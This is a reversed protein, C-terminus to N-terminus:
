APKVIDVPQGWNAFKYNWNMGSETSAANPDAIVSTFGVVQGDANVLYDLTVTTAGVASHDTAPLGLRLDVLDQAKSLSSTLRYRTVDQGDQTKDPSSGVLTFAGDLTEPHEVWMANLIFYNFTGGNVGSMVDKVPTQQTKPGNLDSSVSFVDSGIVAAKGAVLGAQAYSFSLDAGSSTAKVSGDGTTPKDYSKPKIPGVSFTFQATQDATAKAGVFKGLDAVTHVDSASMSSGNGTSGPTGGTSAACGSLATMAIAAVALHGFRM